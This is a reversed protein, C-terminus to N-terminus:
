SSSILHRPLIRNWIMKIQLHNYRFKLYRNRSASRGRRIGTASRAIRPFRLYCVASPHPPNCAVGMATISHVTTNSRETSILRVPSIPAASLLLPPRAAKGVSTTGASFIALREDDPQGALRMGPQRSDGGNPAQRSPRALDCGSFTSRRHRHAPGCYRM